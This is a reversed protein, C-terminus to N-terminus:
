EIGLEKMAHMIHIRMASRAGEANRQELFEMILRHDNLTDAVAKESNASMSVGNSIAQFLIPLLQNMFENHAAMAIAKHFAHEDGTRDQGEIIKNEIAAGYDLIRRIEAESGRVAAFCAAEPEFILRMEYLDRVNAKVNSLGSLNEKYELAAFTVFTGTGRHIELVGYAVLIRIAERLTTRSVGLEASLDNENPLKDGPAFRKEVTIMSLLTDAISQSLMKNNKM